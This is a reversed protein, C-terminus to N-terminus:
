HARGGERGGAAIRPPAGSRLFCRTLARPPPLSSRARRCGSTRSTPYLLHLLIMWGVVKSLLVEAGVAAEQLYKSRMGWSSRAVEHVVAAAAAAPGEWDEGDIPMEGLPVSKPRNLYIHCIHRIVTCGDLLLGQRLSHRKMGEVVALLAPLPSAPYFGMVVVPFRRSLIRELAAIGNWQV